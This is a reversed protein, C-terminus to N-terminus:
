LNEKTLCKTFNQSHEVISNLQELQDRRFGSLKAEFDNIKTRIICHPVPVRDTRSCEMVSILKSDELEVFYDYRPQRHTTTSSRGFEISLYGEISRGTLQYRPMEGDPHLDETVFGPRLGRGAFIRLYRDIPLSSARGQLFINFFEDHAPSATNREDISLPRGTVIGLEFSIAQIPPAGSNTTPLSELTDLYLPEFALEVLKLSGADSSAHSDSHAFSVSVLPNQRFQTCDLAESTDTDAFLVEAFLSVSFTSIVPRFEYLAM